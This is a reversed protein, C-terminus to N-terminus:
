PQQRAEELRVLEARHNWTDRCLCVNFGADGPPECGYASYIEALGTKIRRYFELDPPALEPSIPLGHPMWISPVPVIGHSALYEAGALFSDAPELGVVFTSCGKNRGHVSAIHLLADLHRQRGTVRSDTKPPFLIETVIREDHFLCPRGEPDIGLRFAAEPAVDTLHIVTGDPLFFASCELRNRSIRFERGFQEHVEDQVFVGKPLVLVKLDLSDLTQDAVAYTPLMM